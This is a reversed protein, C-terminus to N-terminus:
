SFIISLILTHVTYRQEAELAHTMKCYLLIKYRNQDYRPIGLFFINGKKFFDLRKAKQSEGTRRRSILGARQSELPHEKHPVTMEFVCIM